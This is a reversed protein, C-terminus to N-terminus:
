AAWSYTLGPILSLGVSQSTVWAATPAVRHHDLSPRRSPSDGCELTQRSPCTVEGKQLSAQRGKYGCFFNFFLPIEELNGKENEGNSFTTQKNTQKDAWSQSLFWTPGASANQMSVKRTENLARLTTIQNESGERYLLYSVFWGASHFFMWFIGAPCFLCSTALWVLVPFGLWVVKGIWHCFSVCCSGL